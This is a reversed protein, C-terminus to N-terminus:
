YSDDDWTTVDIKEDHGYLSRATEMLDDAFDTADERKLYIKLNVPKILEGFDIIIRNHEKDASIKIEYPAKTKEM